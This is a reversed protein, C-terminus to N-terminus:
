ACTIRGDHFAERLYEGDDGLLMKQVFAGDSRTNEVLVRLPQHLYHWATRLTLRPPESTWNDSPDVGLCIEARVRGRREVDLGRRRALRLEDRLADAMAGAFLGCWREAAKSAVPDLVLAHRGLACLHVVDLLEFSDGAGREFVAGEVHVIM